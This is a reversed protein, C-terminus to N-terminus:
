KCKIRVKALGPQEDAHDAAEQSIDMILFVVGLAELLQWVPESIFMVKDFLWVLPGPIVSTKLSLFLITMALQILPDALLQLVYDM